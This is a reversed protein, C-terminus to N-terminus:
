FLFGQLLGSMDDGLGSEALILMDTATQINEIEDTSFGAAILTSTEYDEADSLTTLNDSDQLIDSLLGVSGVLLETSSLSDPDVRFADVAYSSAQEINALRETDGLLDSIVDESSGGESVTAINSLLGDINAQEMNIDLLLTTQELYLEVLLENNLDDATLEIRSSLLSAEANILEEVSINSLPTTSLYVTLENTTMDTARKKFSSLHNNTFLDKCGFINLIIVLLIVLGFKKHM